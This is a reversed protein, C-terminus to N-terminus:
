ARTLIEAVTEEVRHAYADALQRLPIEPDLGIRCPVTWRSEPTHGLVHILLEQLPLWLALLQRWTLLDYEQAAAWNADPYSVAVVRPEVLARAFWQHHATALDILHGMAQKRTWDRRKLKREAAREGITELHPRCVELQSALREALPGAAPPESPYRFPPPPRPPTAEELIERTVGVQELIKAAMCNRERLIGLALHRADIERSDLRDAEEAAHALIQKSEQSLPLDVSTDLRPKREAAAEVLKRITEVSVQKRLFVGDRVIGLLLHEPEIYPSGFVSAEYRAFFITRRAHETYREFM